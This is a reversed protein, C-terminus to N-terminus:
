FITPLQGIAHQQRELFEAQDRKRRRLVQLAAEFGEVPQDLPLGPIEQSLQGDAAVNFLDLDEPSAIEGLHERSREGPLGRRLAERQGIESLQYKILAIIQKM